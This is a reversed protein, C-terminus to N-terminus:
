KQRTKKKQGVNEESVELTKVEITMEVNKQKEGRKKAHMCVLRGQMEEKPYFQSQSISYLCLVQM